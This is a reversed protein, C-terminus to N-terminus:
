RWTSGGSASEMQEQGDVLRMTEELVMLDKELMEAWNQVHGIERISRDAKQYEKEWKATEKAMAAVQKQLEKEQQAIAASNKHLDAARYQLQSDYASGASQLSALVAARAEAQERETTPNSAVATSSGSTSAM